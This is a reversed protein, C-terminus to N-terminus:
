EHLTMVYAVLDAIEQETLVEAWTTPMPIVWQGGQPHPALFDQPNVISTRIYEEATVGPQHQHEVGHISVDWLGPGILLNREPAVSHCTACIWSMGDPMQHPTNFVTQGRVPDGALGQASPAETPATTAAVTPATTPPPTDTPAITATPLSTRTATPPIPTSTPPLTPALATLHENTVALAAQTEQAEAAWEPTAVSGCAAAGFVAALATAPLVLRTLNLHM